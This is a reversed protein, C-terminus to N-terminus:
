DAWWPDSFDVPEFTVAGGAQTLRMFNDAFVRGAPDNISVRAVFLGNVPITALSSGVVYPTLSYAESTGDWQSFMVTLDSENAFDWDSSATVNGLVMSSGTANIYPIYLYYINDGAGYTYHGKGRNATDIIASYTQGDAGTGGASGGGSAASAMSPLAVTILGATAVGTGARLVGRRSIHGEGITEVSDPASNFFQASM